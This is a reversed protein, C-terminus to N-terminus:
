PESLEKTRDEAFSAVDAFDVAPLQRIQEKTLAVQVENGIRAVATVPIAVDKRAWLHGEQLLVHSVTHDASNIVLGKVRGIEGDSAQVPDNRRVAVENLPLHEQAAEITFPSMDMGLLGFGYYPWALVEGAQYGRYIDTSPVFQTVEAPEFMDMDAISCRLRLGAPGGDALQVPVLRASGSDTQVVLHTVADAVPDVVVRTLNGCRGDEAEVEAGILFETLDTVSSKQGAKM